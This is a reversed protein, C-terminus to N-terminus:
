RSAIGNILRRAEVFLLLEDDQTIARAHMTCVRIPYLRQFSERVSEPRGFVPAFVDRWNDKKCIVREYDTFDAYAILPWTRGGHREAESKKEQWQQYLGNPLRHKPWDPGFALTMAEDIFCRIQTELRQLWDHAVNTRVLDDEEDADVSLPVPSGYRSVLSPPEGALGAIDLGEHFAPAPFDTLSPDFGLGVYFDSRAIADTFIPQPWTMRDRWDGLDARLVEAVHDDFAPITRLVHGIGQLEVLSSISRLAAQADLWPTRMAEIATQVSLAQETIHSRFAEFSSNINRYEAFLRRIETPEPLHFRAEYDAVLRRTQDMERRLLSGMDAFQQMNRQFDRITGAAARRLVDPRNIETTVRQVESDEEAM